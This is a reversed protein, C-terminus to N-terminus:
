FELLLVFGASATESSWTLWTDAACLGLVAEGACARFAEPVVGSCFFASLLGAVGHERLEQLAWRVVYRKKAKKKASGGGVTGGSTTSVAAALSSTSV